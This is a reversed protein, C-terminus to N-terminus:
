SLLKLRKFWGLMTLKKQIEPCSRQSFSAKPKEAVMIAKLLMPLLFQNKETEAIMAKLLM